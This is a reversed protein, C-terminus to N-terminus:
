IGGFHMKDNNLISFFISIPSILEKRTPKKSTVSTKDWGRSEQPVGGRSLAEEDQPLELTAVSAQKLIMMHTSMPRSSIYQM